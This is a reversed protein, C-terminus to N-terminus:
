GGHRRAILIGFLIHLGGFSAALYLNGWSAPSLAALTGAAMFSLGMVPILSVSYAGAALVGAGYLLMWAAPLASDTASRHLLYTLVAAAAFAPGLGAAVKRGPGSFLPLGLRVAKSHMCIASIAAAIVAEALWIRLWAGPNAWYQAFWAALPATAGLIILGRGSVATFSSSRALTDRIFRLDEAPEADLPRFRGPRRIRHQRPDPV